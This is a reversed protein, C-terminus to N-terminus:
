YIRHKKKLLTIHDEAIHEFSVITNSLGGAEETEGRHEIRSGIELQLLLKAWYAENERQENKSIIQQSARMAFSNKLHLQLSTPDMESCLIAQQKEFICLVLRYIMLWSDQWFLLFFRQVQSLPIVQTFLTTIWNICLSVIEIRKEQLHASLAPLEEQVLVRIIECHMYLGPLKAM